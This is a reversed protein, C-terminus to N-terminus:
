CTIFGGCVRGFHSGGGRHLIWVLLFALCLVAVVSEGAQQYLKPRLMLWDFWGGHGPIRRGLWGADSAIAVPFVGIADLVLAFVGRWSWESDSQQRELMTIFTAFCFGFCLCSLSLSFLYVRVQCMEAAEAIRKLLYRRDVDDRFLDAGGNARVTVHYIAGKYELRLRRSM